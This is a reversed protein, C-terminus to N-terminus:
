ALFHHAISDFIFFKPLGRLSGAHAFAAWNKQKSPPIALNPNNHSKHADM